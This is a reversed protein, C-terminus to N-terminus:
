RPQVNLGVGSVDGGYNLDVATSGYFEGPEGLVGDHDRDNGAELTYRGAPVNELAFSGGRDARAEAVLTSGQRLRVRFDSYHASLLDRAAKVAAEANVLGYGYYPDWGAAGLDTATNALILKVQAPTLDPNAALMLAAVGAVHPSAMSTGEYHEYGGGPVTSLVGGSNGYNTQDGGPAALWVASGYNSYPAKVDTPGTAAVAIATPDAAPYFAFPCNSNGAAAVMTAGNSAALAMAWRTTEDLPVQSGCPNSSSWIGLSMNVVKAKAPPCVQQGASNYVCFGAAYLIGRALTYADGGPGIVRVPLVKSAWSVGAVGTNNNTTAAVTGSVHTGHGNGDAVNTSNTLFDYGPLIKGALDPHSGNVGTDLVAVTVEASGVTLYWTQPLKIAAYHWQQSYLPDNPTALAQIVRNPEVSRVRGDLRLKRVVDGVAKGGTHLKFVPLEPSLVGALSLGHDAALAAAAGQLAQRSAQPLSRAGRPSLGQKVAVMGPELAVLVEGPVYTGPELALPRAGLSGPRVQDAPGTINGTLSPFRMYVTITERASSGKFLVTGAYHGPTLGSRSVTVTVTADGSGSAPSVQLWGQDSQATWRGDATVSVTASSTGPFSLYESSAEITTAGGNGGSGGGGGGNCAALLLLLGATAARAFGKIKM